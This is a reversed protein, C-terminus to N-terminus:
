EDKLPYVTKLNSQTFNGIRQISNESLIKYINTTYYEDIISFYNDIIQFNGQSSVYYVGQEFGEIKDTINCNKAMKISFTNSDYYIAKISFEYIEPVNFCYLYNNYYFVTQKIDIGQQAELKVGIIESITDKLEFNNNNRNLKYIYISMDGENSSSVAFADNKIYAISFVPFRTNMYYVEDLTTPNLFRVGKQYGGYLIIFENTEEVKEYLLNNGRYLKLVEKNGKYLSNANKLNLVQM